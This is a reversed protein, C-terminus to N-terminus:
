MVKCQKFMAVNTPFGLPDETGSNCMAFCVSTLVSACAVPLVVFREITDWLGKADALLPHHRKERTAIDGFCFGL